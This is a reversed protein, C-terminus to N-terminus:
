WHVSIGADRGWARVLITGNRVMGLWLPTSIFNAYTFSLRGQYDRGIVWISNNGSPNSVQLTGLLRKEDLSEYSGVIIAKKLLKSGLLTCPQEEALNSCEPSESVTDAGVASLVPAIVLGCLLLAIFPYYVHRM